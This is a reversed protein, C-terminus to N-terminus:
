KWVLSFHSRPMPPMLDVYYTDLKVSSARRVTYCLGHRTTAMMGNYCDDPELALAGLVMRIMFCVCDWWDTRRSGREKETGHCPVIWLCAPLCAPLCFVIKNGVCAEVTGSWGTTMGLRIGLWNHPNTQHANRARKEGTTVRNILCPAFRAIREVIKTSPQRDHSHDQNTIDKLHEYEFITTNCTTSRCLSHRSADRSRLFNREVMNIMSLVVFSGRRFSM